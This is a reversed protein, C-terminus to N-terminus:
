QWRFGKQIIIRGPYRARCRQTNIYSFIAEEIDRPYILTPYTEQGLYTRELVLSWSEHNLPEDI